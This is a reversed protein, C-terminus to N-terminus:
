CSNTAPVEHRNANKCYVLFLVSLLVDVALNAVWREQQATSLVLMASLLSAVLLYSAVFSYRCMQLQTSRLPYKICM